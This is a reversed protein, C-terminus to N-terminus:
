NVMNDSLPRSPSSLSLSLSLPIYVCRRHSAALKVLTRLLPHDDLIRSRSRLFAPHRSPVSTNRNANM